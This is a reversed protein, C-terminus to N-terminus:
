GLDRRWDWEPAIVPTAETDEVERRWAVREGVAARLQWAIPKSADLLSERITAFRDRTRELTDDPLGYDGVSALVVDLNKTLDHYLGWDRSCVDSVYNVDISIELDTEQDADRLPVDKVLAIVDHVDKQNIKGIQLKSILADVPSIAYDDLDLRDRVDVDHDMRMVDMFIDVHDVLPVEHRTHGARGGDAQRHMERLAETKIYQLQSSSTSQTVYRNETYDLRTFVDHLESAQSSLGVFDIDSYERDMFALDSCYRRVALGGTLRLLAGQDRAADIMAMAEAMLRDARRMPARQETLGSKLLAGAKAGKPPRRLDELPHLVADLVPRALYVRPRRDEEWEELFGKAVLEGVAARAAPKRLDLAKRAHSVTMCPTRFSEKAVALADKKLTARCREYHRILAQAQATARKATQRVGELFLELWPTWEGHTRVRQLLTYYEDRHGELYASLYLLPRTLRKRDILFLTILLRGLRGNGGAFPHIAEFQEHLMACQILEPFSDRDKLFEDWSQLAELMQPVPPAIYIATALTSGPRGVWNQSTRFQGPARACGIEGRLLWEHLERVLDLSLPVDQLREVGHRLTAVCSRVEQLHDRPVDARAAGVQDLLLDSLSVEAGEIRSSCLAEQRKFPADLLKPDPLQGEVGALEGLAADARSLALVLEPTFSLGPPLPAPVFAAYGEPTTVVSGAEPAHFESPDILGDEIHFSTCPSVSRAAACGINCPQRPAALAGL